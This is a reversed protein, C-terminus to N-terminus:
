HHLLQYLSTPEKLTVFSNPIFPYPSHYGKSLQGRSWTGILDVTIDNVLRSHGRPGYVCFVSVLVTQSKSMDRAEQLASGPSGPPAKRTEDVVRTQGM